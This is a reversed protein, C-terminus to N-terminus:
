TSSTCYAVHENSWELSLGAKIAAYDRELGEAFTQLDSVQSTLCAALWGDLKEAKRERVLALFQQGLKYAQGVEPEERLRDLLEQEHDELEDRQRLFLWVVQRAAGLRSGQRQEGRTKGPEAGHQPKQGIRQLYHKPTSPSPEARRRQVWVAVPKRAGQYGRQQIERLLQMGNRCGADWREQLYAEYEDLISRPPPGAAREPFAPSKIFRRVTQRGMGLRKAIQLISVGQEHLQRVQDYRAARRLRRGVKAADENASRRPELVALPTAAVAPPTVAARALRQQLQPRLRDLIRELVERLNRLLHWRDAVQIADPAGETAGRTYETSRDRTIIQVGPHQRLWAALTEACRDPLLEVPRARELDVLITGYVRGKRLAWDDVGLVRPTPRTGGCPQRIIRLLTDSSSPLRLQGAV